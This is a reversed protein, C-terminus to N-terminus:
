KKGARARTRGAALRALLEEGVNFEVKDTFMALHRGLRELNAGKDALKFKKVYGSLNRDAGDGSFLEAVDLGAIARRADEDVEHLPKATGNPNWFALPDYFALRALERKVREVSVDLEANVKANQDDIAQRVNVDKLLRSAQAGATKESYGAAIAARTANQDLLYEKVFRTRRQHVAKDNRPM